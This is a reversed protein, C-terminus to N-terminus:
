KIQMISAGVDYNISGSSTTLITSVTITTSAKVRINLEAQNNYGTTSINSYNFIQATNNEDTWAIRMNVVDTTVSNVTLYAGVKFTAASASNAFSVVTTTATTKSTLDASAATALIGTVSTVSLTPTTSANSVSFNIGSSNVASFTTVTGANGLVKTSAGSRFKLVGGDNWIDGDHPNTLPLGSAINLSALGHGTNSPPINLIASTDAKLSNLITMRGGRKDLIFGGQNTVVSFDEYSFLTDENIGVLTGNDGGFILAGGTGRTETGVYIIENSIGVTLLSDGTIKNGNWFYSYSGREWNGLAVSGTPSVTDSVFGRATANVYDKTAIALTDIAIAKAAAGTYTFTTVGYGNTLNFLNSGLSVGSITSNALDSNQIAAIYSTSAGSQKLYGTGNLLRNYRADNLNRDLYTFGNQNTNIYGDTVSNSQMGAFATYTTTLKLGNLNSYGFDVSNSGLSYSLAWGVHTLDFECGASGLQTFAQIDGTPLFDFYGFTSAQSLDKRNGYGLLMEGTTDVFATSGSQGRYEITGTVPATTGALPIFSGGGSHMSLYRVLDRIKVLENYQQKFDLNQFDWCSLMRCSDPYDSSIGAWKTLAERIRVLQTYNQYLDLNQPQSKNDNFCLLPRCTDLQAQMGIVFAISLILMAILKRKFDKFKM